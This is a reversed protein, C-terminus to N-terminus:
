HWTSLKMYEDIYIQTISIYINKSSFASRIDLLSFQTKHHYIASLQFFPLLTSLTFHFTAFRFPLKRKSVRVFQFKRGTTVIQLKITKHWLALHIRSYRWCNKRWFAGSSDFYMWFYISGIDGGGRYFHM